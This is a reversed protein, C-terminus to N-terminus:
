KPHAKLTRRIQLIRRGLFLDAQYLGELTRESLPEKLIHKLTQLITNPDTSSRVARQPDFGTALKLLAISYQLEMRCLLAKKYASVDWHGDPLNIEEFLAVARKISSRVREEYDVM